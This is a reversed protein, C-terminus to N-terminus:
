VDRPHMISDVLGKLSLLNEVTMVCGNGVVSEDYTHLRTYTIPFVKIEGHKDVCKVCEAYEYKM